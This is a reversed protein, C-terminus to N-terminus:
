SVQRVRQLFAFMVAGSLLVCAGTTAAGRPLTFALVLCGVFGLAPVVRSRFGGSPSLTWAAANAVAYYHLAAFSSFGIASRFDTIAAFLAVLIGLAIEARHPIRYRDHVAAFFTPLDRQAAMAFVTRGVGALLSLLVGLSAFSAGMRVVPSLFALRGNSVALVLPTSSAALQAREAGALVTAGVTAYVLMTVGLAVLIARPITRAPDVVEEALTALRAYGAFAFFLFGASQLIGRPDLPQVPWLRQANTAGGRWVAVITVMLASLTVAVLIRTLGATKSVGLCNVTTLVLVAAIALPRAMEPWAHIGFTLAMAACSALKGVVFGWGALFGWLAGLRERGYVYAGGSEPYVAALRASSLANCYAVGAALALGIVLANGAARAAPAFAAFVGAGLMAGLGIVVADFTGLRRALRSPEQGGIM